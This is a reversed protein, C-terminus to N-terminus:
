LEREPVYAVACRRRFTRAMFAEVGGIQGFHWLGILSASMFPIRPRLYRHMSQSPSSGNCEGSMPLSSSCSRGGSYDGVIM